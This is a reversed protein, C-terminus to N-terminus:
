RLPARRRQAPHDVAADVGRVAVLPHHPGSLDRRRRRPGRGRGILSCLTVSAVGYTFSTGIATARAVARELWARASPDGAVAEVEGCIYSSWAVATPWGAEVARGHMTAALDRAREVDGGYATAIAANAGSILEGDLAHAALWAARAAAHDGQFVKAVGLSLGARSAAWVDDGARQGALTALEAARDVQGRRWAAQAALTLARVRDSPVLDLDALEDAWAWMESVDRLLVWDYLDVSVEVLEAFRGEARLRRRAVRINPLERRIRDCWHWERDSRVSRALDALLALTWEVQAGQAAHALGDAALRESGFARMTELQVYRTGSPYEVRNVLSTAVLRDLARWTDGGVDLALREVLWELGDLTLGAPFVSLHDFLRQCAPDLQEFSWELATRLSRHRASTDVRDDGLLDLRRDLRALLDPLGLTGARGAALELALPLGDLARCLAVLDAAGHADLRIEGANRKARDLFLAVAPNTVIDPGASGAEEPVPLPQLRCVHEARLGLPSRSTALVHTDETEDLVRSVLRRAAPLVHECNDVVLLMREGRLYACAAGVEDVSPAEIGLASVLAQGLAEPDRVEALDVFTWAGSAPGAPQPGSDLRRALELSLRTKGTGGPGVITVFRCHAVLGRLEVLERDRGYFADQPLPVGAPGAAGARAAGPSRAVPPREEVPAVFQYGRGHVTRITHQERGNDGVVARASKIRSTLASDSVFRSGWVETLLEPKGVVRDRHRMLLTLVDFVQPELAVAEGAVRVLRQAVDVEVDHFVFRM